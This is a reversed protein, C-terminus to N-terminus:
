RESREETVIKVKRVTKRVRNFIPNTIDETLRFHYPVDATTLGTFPKDKKMTVSEFYEKRNIEWKRGSLFKDLITEPSPYTRNFFAMM